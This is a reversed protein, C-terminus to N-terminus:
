KAEDNCRRNWHEIAEDESEFWGVCVIHHEDGLCDVGYMIRRSDRSEIIRPTGGCFPCPKLEDM